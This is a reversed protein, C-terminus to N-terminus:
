EVEEEDRGWSRWLLVSAMVGFIIFSALEPMLARGYTESVGIL